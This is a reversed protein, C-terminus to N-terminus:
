EWFNEEVPVDEYEEEEVAQPVPPKKEPVIAPQGVAADRVDYFVLMIKLRGITLQDGDRLIFRGDPTTPCEIQAKGHTSLLMCGRRYNMWVHRRRVDAHRIRIDAVSGSGILGEVGVPFRAGRLSKKKQKQGDDLVVLEGVSGAEGVWDRLLKANRNDQVSARWGRLVILAALLIFWYRAALALLEYTDSGM